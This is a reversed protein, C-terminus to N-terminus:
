EIHLLITEEQKEEPVRSCDQVRLGACPSLSPEVPGRVEVCDGGQVAATELFVDVVETTELDDERCLDLGDPVLVAGSTRM